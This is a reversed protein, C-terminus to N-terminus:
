FDLTKKLFDKSQLYLGTYRAYYVELFTSLEKAPKEEIELKTISPISIKEYIRLLQITKPNVIRENTYCNKCVLGGVDGDITVIYGNDRGKPHFQLHGETTNYAPIAEVVIDEAIQVKDGNAMVMGAGYMEACRKNMILKTKDASLLKLTAADYHDAHEHTVLIYDAKPMVSYDIARNGLRGVPDIEIERGDYVMRICSHMLAYCKLTKGSKTEFADMEYEGRPTQQACATTMAVIALLCTIMKKM